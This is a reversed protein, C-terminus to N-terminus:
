QCFLKKKAHQLLNNKMYVSYKLSDNAFAIIQSLNILTNKNIIMYFVRVTILKGWQLFILLHRKMILININITKTSRRYSFNSICYLKTIHVYICYTRRYKNKGAELLLLLMMPPLITLHDIIWQTTTTKLNAISLHRTHITKQNTMLRLLLSKQYMRLHLLMQLFRRYINSFPICM